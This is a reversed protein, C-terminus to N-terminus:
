VDESAARERRSLDIGLEEAARSSDEDTDVCRTAADTVPHLGGRKLCLSQMGQDSRSPILPPRARSHKEGKFSAENSRPGPLPNGYSKIHSNIHLSYPLCLYSV